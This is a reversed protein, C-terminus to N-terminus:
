RANSDGDFVSTDNTPQREGFRFSLCPTRGVKIRELESVDVAKTVGAIDKGALRNATARTPRDGEHGQPASRPQRASAAPPM